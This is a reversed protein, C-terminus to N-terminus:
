ANSRFAEEVLRSVGDSRLAVDDHLFLFFGDSGEVVRMVHNAVPGFGPNGEVHRVLAEPLVDSVRRGVEPDTTGTLFAVLRLDPYDQAALGALVEAFWEGPEHVVMVAVVPPATDTPREEAPTTM